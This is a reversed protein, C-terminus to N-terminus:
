QAGNSTMFVCEGSASAPPVISALGSTGTGADTTTVDITTAKQVGNPFYTGQGATCTGRSECVWMGTGADNFCQIAVKTGIGGLRFPVTATRNNVSGAGSTPITGLYSSEGAHALFSLPILCFALFLAIKKM